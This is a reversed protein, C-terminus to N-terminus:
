KETNQAVNKVGTSIDDLTDQIEGTVSFLENSAKLSAKSSKLLELPETHIDHVVAAVVDVLKKNLDLAGKLSRRAMEVHGELTAGSIEKFAYQEAINREKGYNRFAYFAFAIVPTVVITRAIVASLEVSSKIIDNVLEHGLNVAVVLSVIGILLWVGAVITLFMTRKKFYATSSEQSAIKLLTEISNKAEASAIEHDKIKKLATESATKDIKISKLNDSVEDRYKNIEAFLTNSAEAVAKIDDRLKQTALLIADLGNNPDDIKKKSVEFEEYAAEINTIYADVQTLTKEAKNLLNATNTSAIKAQRRLEKVTDLTVLLGSNPEDINQKVSLFNAYATEMEEVHAAATTLTGEIKELTERASTANALIAGVSTQGEALRANVGTSPETLKGLLDNSSTVVSEIQTKLSRANRLDTKAGDIEVKLEPLYQELQARLAEIEKKTMQRENYALFKVLVGKM